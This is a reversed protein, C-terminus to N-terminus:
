IDNLDLNEKRKTKKEPQEIKEPAKAPKQKKLKLLLKERVRSTAEEAEGSKLAEKEEETLERRERKRLRLELVGHKFSVEKLEGVIDEPWPIDRFQVDVRLHEGEDIVDVLPPREELEPRVTHPRMGGTPREVWRKPPPTREGGGIPRRVSAIGFDAIDGLLRLHAEKQQEYLAKRAKYRKDLLEKHTERLIKQAEYLAKLAEPDKSRRRM